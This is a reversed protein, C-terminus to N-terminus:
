VFCIVGFILNPLVRYKRYNGTIFNILILSLCFGGFVNVLKFLYHFISGLFYRRKRFQYLHYFSYFSNYYQSSSVLFIEHICNLRFIWSRLLYRLSRHNLFYFKLSDICKMISPFDCLFDM